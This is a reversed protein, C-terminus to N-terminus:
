FGWASFEFAEEYLSDSPTYPFPIPLRQFYAYDIWNISPILTAARICMKSMDSREQHFTPTDNM